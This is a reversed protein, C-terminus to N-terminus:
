RVLVLGKRDSILLDNVRLSLAEQLRLGTHLLFVVISADRQHARWRKPYRLLSLQVDKEIARHLAFQQKKDLHKPGSNVQAVNRIDQTPDHEILGAQKAWAMFSSLAALRRNITSAKRREVNLLFQRYESVDTPTVAQPSFAEGNTQEFWRNFHVLDALYGNVTLRSRDQNVLHTRFAELTETM